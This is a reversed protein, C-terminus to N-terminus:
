TYKPLLCPLQDSNVAPILILPLPQQKTTVRSRPRAIWQHSPVIPHNVSPRSTSSAKIESARQGDPSRALLLPAVERSDLSPHPRRGSLINGGVHAACIKSKKMMDNSYMKRIQNQDAQLSINSYFKLQARMCLSSCRRKRFLFYASCMSLWDPASCM